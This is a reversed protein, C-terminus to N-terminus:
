QRTKTAILSRIAPPTLPLAEIEVGFESLANVVANTIAAPPGIAGGEGAGKLGLPTNPSPSEFHDITVSPIETATPILYDMFSAALPQGDEGYALHEFLTGGIEQAVGGRVQGEVIPPNVMPGCDHVAIYDLVEIEGTELDVSVVAAHTANACTAVPNMRGHEDPADDVLPPDYTDVAELGADLGPPLDATRVWAATGVEALAVRRDPAGRVRVFGQAIELDDKGVELLHAAITLVKDRVRGAAALIAGGGVITSRSGWGGLGYPSVDTDGSEVRVSEVPVGLADAALVAAMTTTGQGATTVGVSVVVSGDPEMRIRASDHATWQGTTGFYSPATGELYTAVGLGIRVNPDAHEARRKAEAQRGRDVARDFAAEFSGSDIIGGSPNTYPLDDAGLLMRRRLDLADLNLERAIKDVLLELAFYAEPQGFGRYAGSPTKNTVVQTISCETLPIRYAGTISGASVFTPNIGPMFIEGSGVDHLFRCRLAAITGDDEVAAELEMTQERAHCSAVLHESRDEIWRVPRRLRWAIWAVLVEEPYIHTKVGFSGGVDPAVVHIDREPLPLVYSLTTRTIHPSQTSTYLTLRGDRVDAVCGRTEIPVGGHRHMSFRGSVVRRSSFADAVDASSAPLDVIRNDPWDDYLRPAEESLATEASSVVPLPDYDVSVLEVGDEARYRDQGVVVAIPAGVYRVRDRALPFCRVPKIHSIFDPFPEVDVLDAATFAAVVGEVARAESVDVAIRAHAFQSRAVTMEVMRPLRIDAVFRAGGRLLREDEVRPLRAGLYVPRGALGPENLKGSLDPRM